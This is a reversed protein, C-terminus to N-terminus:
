HQHLMVFPSILRHNKGPIVVMNIKISDTSKVNPPAVFYFMALTIQHNLIFLVVGGRDEFNDM